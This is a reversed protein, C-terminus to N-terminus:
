GRARKQRVPMKFTPKEQILTKEIAFLFRAQSTSPAQLLDPWEVTRQPNLMILTPKPFYFCSHCFDGFVRNVGDIVPDLM